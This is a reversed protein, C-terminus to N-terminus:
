LGQGARDELPGGLVSLNVLPISDTQVCQHSASRERFEGPEQVVSGNVIIGVVLDPDCQKTPNIVTNLPTSQLM